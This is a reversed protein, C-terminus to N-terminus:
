YFNIDLPQQAKIDSNPFNIDEGTIAAQLKQNEDQLKQNEELLQNIVLMSKKITDKQNDVLQRLRNIEVATKFMNLHRM